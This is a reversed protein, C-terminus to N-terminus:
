TPNGSNDKVNDKEKKALKLRALRKASSRRANEDLADASCSPCRKAVNTMLDAGCACKKVVKRQLKAVKYDVKPRPIGYLPNITRMELREKIKRGHLRQGAKVNEMRKRGSM